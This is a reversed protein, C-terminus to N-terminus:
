SQKDAKPLAIHLVLLGAVASLVSGALVGLKVGALLDFNGHEFALTGIFLSMTFGIGCLIAVGYIQGWTTGEPLKALRFLRALLVMGFVGVQKGVFLGLIIGM